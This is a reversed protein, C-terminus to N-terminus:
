ATDARLRRGLRLADLVESASGIEASRTGGNSPKTTSALIRPVRARILRARTKRQPWDCIASPKSLTHRSGLTDRHDVPGPSRRRM